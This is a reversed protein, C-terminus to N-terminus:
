KSHYTNPELSKNFYTTLNLSPRELTLLDVKESGGAAAAKAKAKDEALKMKMANEGLSLLPSKQKEYVYAEGEGVNQVNQQSGIQDFRMAM